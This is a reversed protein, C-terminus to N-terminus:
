SVGQEAANAAALLAAGISRAVKPELDADCDTVGGPYAFIAHPFQFEGECPRTATVNLPEPLEVIAIGPLSLLVGALEQFDPVALRGLSGIVRLLPIVGGEVFYRIDGRLGPM